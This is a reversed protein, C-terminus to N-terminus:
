AYVGPPDNPSPSAPLLSLPHLWRCEETADIQVRVTLPWHDQDHKIDIVTASPEGDFIAPAHIRVQRGISIQNPQLSIPM